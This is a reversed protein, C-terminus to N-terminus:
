ELCSPATVTSISFMADFAVAYLVIFIALLIEGVLAVQPM